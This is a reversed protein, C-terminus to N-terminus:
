LTCAALSTTRPLSFSIEILTAGCERRLHRRLLRVHRLGCDWGSPYHTANIPDHCEDLLKRRGQGFRFRITSSESPSSVQGSVAFAIAPATIPMPWSPARSMRRPRIRGSSLAAALFAPLAFFPLVPGFSLDSVGGRGAASTSFRGRVPRSTQLRHQGTVRFHREGGHHM